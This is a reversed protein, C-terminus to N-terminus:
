RAALRNQHEYVLYSVEAITRDAAVEDEEDRWPHRVFVSLVYPRGPLFVLGSDSVMNQYTGVKHAVRLDWPLYAVLRDHFLTDYLFSLPEDGLEPAEARFRLLAKFHAAVDRACTRNDDGRGTPLVLVGERRMFDYLNERGLRRFLANTAVNDSVQIASIALERLTFPRLGPEWSEETDEFDEPLLSIEEGLDIRGEKALTYLYLVLPVKITSGAPVPERDRIGIITGTTLDEFHIHIDQPAGQVYRSLAKELAAYEDSTAMLAKNLLVMALLSGALITIAWRSM